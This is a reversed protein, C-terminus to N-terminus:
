HHRGKDRVIEDGLDPLFHISQRDVFQV